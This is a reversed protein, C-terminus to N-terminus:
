RGPTGGPQPNLKWVSAASAAALPPMLQISQGIVDLHPAERTSYHVSHLPRGDSSEVRLTEGRNSLAGAFWGFVETRPYRRRFAEPDEASALVIREGPALQAHLGFQFDLGKIHHRSLDLELLGHNLLEVFEYERGGLPQFMIETFQLPFPAEDPAFSAKALASWEGNSSTRALLTTPGQIAIPERYRHQSREKKELDRPDRGDLTVYIDGEKSSLSVSSDSSLPEGSHSFQPAWESRQLDLTKLQAMVIDQRNPIWESEIYPNLDPLIQLMVNRLEETRKRLNEKSLPQGPQFHQHVRDAFRLRFEDNRVLSRFLRAIEASSALPGKTLNNATYLRQQPWRQRSLSGIRKGPTGFAREADWIYFRWKGRPTRERAARWNNYPWDDMDVYVNLLIYDIFADIDLQQRIAEYVEPQGADRDIGLELFQRWARDDGMRVEGRQAIIDWDSGGGHRSQLLNADIREVPNYYGQYDGNLFLTAMVGQSSGQGMDAYLRRILEDVIFPNIPDNMGARLVLHEFQTEPIQPILPYNLRNQGYTGRFYLRFSYKGTPPPTNRRHNHRIYDGGQIRLGADIRFGKEAEAQPIWEVSVPREWRPGRRITNRPQDELIGTRGFLNEPASVLSLAPLSRIAEPMGVLYTATVIPSSLSDPAFAAARIVTTEEIQIPAQYRTGAAQTPVRADTTYRIEADPDTTSLTLRFPAVFGGSRSLQPPMLIRPTSPGGNTKGPSPTSWYVWDGDPNAGYALDGRQEPYAKIESVAQSPLSHDSLGLYGGGASLRFNTHLNGEPSPRNKGSAFIVIRQGPHVIRKPFRWKGPKKSDDTLAWGELNQAISDANLLEIWDHFEGDEDVLGTQNSAMFERIQINAPALRPELTYHWSTPRLPNPPEARDTIGSQEVLAVEVRGPGVPDLEIDWPGASFGEVSRPPHGNIRLSRTEFTEVPESFWLRIRPLSGLISEAPPQIRAIVPRTRDRIEYTKLRAEGIFPNPPRAFDQIRHASDWELTATGHYLSPYTFTWREANGSVWLAPSGNVRLDQNSVGDVPENFVVTITKLQDIESSDPSLHLISPAQEDRPIGILSADILFDTSSLSINFGQIAILNRGPKLLSPGDPIELTEFSGSEHSDFALAKHNLQRPANRDLARNGNIWVIFGDDYNIHLDLAALNEVERVEFGQRIVVGPYRRPMDDLTTGGSGDGYRFPAPGIPWQAVNYDPQTWTSMVRPSLDRSKLYHWQSGPEVLVLPQASSAVLPFICTLIHRLMSHM